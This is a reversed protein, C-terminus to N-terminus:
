GCHMTVGVFAARYVEASANEAKFTNYEQETIQTGEKTLYRMEYKPETLLITKPVLEQQAESTRDIPHTPPLGTNVDVMITATEQIWVPCGTITDIINLGNEDTQIVLKPRQNETSFDCDCTIKAVTYSHFVDDTTQLQGYGPITSSTILDGSELPGNIDSVWIAGEGIANVHMRVDGVEVLRQQQSATLSDDANLPSPNLSLVGFVRKDYARKALSVIPLADNTTIADKGRTFKGFPANGKATIYDDQDCVVIFGEKQGLSNTTEGAV